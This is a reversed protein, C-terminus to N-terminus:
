LITRCIPCSILKPACSECVAHRLEGHLPIPTTGVFCIYCEFPLLDLAKQIITIIQKVKERALEFHVFEIPNDVFTTQVIKPLSELKRMGDRLCQYKHGSPKAALMNLIDDERLDKAFHKFVYSLQNEASARLILSRCKRHGLVPSKIHQANEVLDVLIHMSNESGDKAYKLLWEKFVKSCDGAHFHTGNTATLYSPWMSIINSQGIHSNNASSPEPLKLKDLTTKIRTINKNLIQHLNACSANSVLIQTSLVAFKRDAKSSAYIYEAINKDTLYRDASPCILLCFPIIGHMAKIETRILTLQTTFADKGIHRGNILRFSEVLFTWYRLSNEVCQGANKHLYEVLQNEDTFEDLNLRPIRAMARELIMRLFNDDIGDLTCGIDHSGPGQFPVSSQTLLGFLFTDLNMLHSKHVLESNSVTIQYLLWYYEFPKCSNIFKKYQTADSLSSDRQGILTEFTGIKGLLQELESVTQDSTLETSMQENHQATSLACFTKKIYTLLKWANEAYKTEGTSFYESLTGVLASSFLEFKDLESVLKCETQAIDPCISKNDDGIKPYRAVGYCWSDFKPLSKTWTENDTIINLPLFFMNKDRKELGVIREVILKPPTDTEVCVKGNHSNPRAEFVLFVDTETRGDDAKFMLLLTKQQDTLMLGKRIDSGSTSSVTTLKLKDISSTASRRFNAYTTM